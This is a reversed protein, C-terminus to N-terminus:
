FLGLAMDAIIFGLIATIGLYIQVQVRVRLVVTFVYALVYAVITLVYALVFGVILVVLATDIGRAYWAALFTGPVLVFPAGPWSGPGNKHDFARAVPWCWPPPFAYAYAWGLSAVSSFVAVVRVWKSGGGGFLLWVVLAAVCIAVCVAVLVNLVHFLLRRRHQRVITDFHAIDEETMQRRFTAIAEDPTPKRSLADASVEPLRDYFRTVLDNFGCEVALARGAQRAQALLQEADFRKQLREFATRNDSMAAVAMLVLEPETIKVGMARYMKAGYIMMDVLEVAAPSCAALGMREIVRFAWRTRVFYM